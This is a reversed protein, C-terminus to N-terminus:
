ITNGKISVDDTGRIKKAGGRWVSTMYLCKKCDLCNEVFLIFGLKDQFFAVNILYFPTQVYNQNSKLYVNPLIFPWVTAKKFAKRHNKSQELQHFLFVWSFKPTLVIYYCKKM